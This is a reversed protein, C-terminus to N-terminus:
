IDEINRIGFRKDAFMSCFTCSNHTCGLTVQVLLSDAEIWPRYVKGEYRM